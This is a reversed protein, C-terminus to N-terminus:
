LVVATRAPEVSRPTITPVFVQSVGMHAVVVGLDRHTFASAIERRVTRCKASVQVVEGQMNIESM